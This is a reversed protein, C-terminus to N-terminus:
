ELIKVYKEWSFVGICKPASDTGKKIWPNLEYVDRTRGYNSCSFNPIHGINYGMGKLYNFDIEDKRVGYWVDHVHKIEM